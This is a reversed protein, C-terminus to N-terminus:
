PNRARIFIAPSAIPFQRTSSSSTEMPVDAWNALDFSQQIIPDPTSDTETTLTWQQNAHSYAIQAGSLRPPTPDALQHDLLWDYLSDTNWVQNWIAHGGTAYETYSITLSDDRYIFDGNEPYAPALHDNARILDNVIARTTSVSVISDNRAHFTRIPIKSLNETISGTRPSIGCIPIAAAFRNPYLNLLDWVGGGGMSFGTIYIRQPDVNREAIAKDIQAIIDAARNAPHWFSTKAQPLYLFCSRAKATQLLNSFDVLHRTNDSGRGGGGHLGLILPRKEQSNENAPIYLRGPVDPTSYNAYDSQGYCILSIYLISAAFATRKWIRHLM